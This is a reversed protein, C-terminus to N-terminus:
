SDCDVFVPSAGIKVIALATAFASIPSTLVYCGPGCGLARLSLEIADLGSAVGIVYPIRWYALLAQEFELVHPGLIYSGSAGVAEVARLVDAGTDAWQRKFDNLLILRASM